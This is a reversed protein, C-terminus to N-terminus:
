PAGACPRTPTDSQFSSGEARGRPRYMYIGCHASTPAPDHDQDLSLLQEGPPRYSTRAEVAARSSFVFCSLCEVLLITSRVGTRM